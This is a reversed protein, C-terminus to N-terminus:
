VYITKLHKSPIEPRTQVFNQNEPREPCLDDVGFVTPVASDDGRSDWFAVGFVCHQALSM